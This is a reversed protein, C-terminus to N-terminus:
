KADVEDATLWNGAFDRYMAVGADDLYGYELQKSAVVTKIKVVLDDLVTSTADRRPDLRADRCNELEPGVGQGISAKAHEWTERITRIKGGSALGDTVARIADEAEDLCRGASAISGDPRADFGDDTSTHSTGTTSTGTTSTETADM